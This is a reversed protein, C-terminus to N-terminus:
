TIELEGLKAIFEDIKSLFIEFVKDILSAFPLSGDNEICFLYSNKKWDLTIAKNPCNSNCAKCLDCFKWYDQHLKPSKDKASFDYLKKPCMRASICKDPCEKCKSDNFDIKPVYRFYVNAVAQWKAHDKATGLVAYAEFILAGKEIKVIPIRPDVPVVEPDNSKLDGSYITLPANNPNTVECTLSVQCLPCGFGGCECERPLNYHKLDTKLPILGLRHAIIEDYLPSDNKLIIVDEIALTPVESLLIIRIANVMEITIGEIVFTLKRDSKEVLEINM